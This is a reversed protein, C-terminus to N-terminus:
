RVTTPADCTVIASAPRAAAADPGDELAIDIGRLACIEEHEIELAVGGCTPCTASEAPETSEFVQLCTFCQYRAPREIITVTANAAATNAACLAFHQRAAAATLHGSTSLVLEVGTVRAGGAKQMHELATQVVGRMAAVEHM